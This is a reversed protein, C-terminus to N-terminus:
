IIRLKGTMGCSKLVCVIQKIVAEETDGYFQVLEGSLEPVNTRMPIAECEGTFYDRHTETASEKYIYAKVLM